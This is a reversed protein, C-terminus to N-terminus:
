AIRIGCRQFADQVEALELAGVAEFLGITATSAAQIADLVSQRPFSEALIQRSQEREYGVHALVHAYHAVDPSLFAAIFQPVACAMASRM